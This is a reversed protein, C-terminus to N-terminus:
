FSYKLTATSSRGNISRARIINDIGNTISGEEAETLGKANFLNNVNVSLSLGDTIAADAFLNVQAYGPMVLENNDQAYSKTTGIINAGVTYGEYSYSPTLQYVLKAQRRPTNGKVAPTLADKSIEADTWTAGGSLLFGEYRYTAELEIGKATYTRDFFRQSTAEFNQEQTKAYFATAFVSVDEGRWKVGAEYQDVMDVADQKAVSGDARLRGFLLRDANARGGQSVRAFAALDPDIMYNAGVSWSWYGWDYNIKQPNASDIVSVSREPVNISGDRNVDVQAQRSAIYNGRAQGEDRRLSADLNWQGMEWAASVYPADITYQADYRRTCCNGWLPVGYALLGNSTLKQGAANYVDLLRGDRGNVDMVYTNWLWDMEINQRAKYYGATLDITSDGSVISKTLKFDNALNSFDNIEVDFLAVRTALGNGNLASPTGISSGDTNRLTAGAGGIAVALAQAGMVEQPFPSVFRGSTDAVRLKNAVAWGDALDFKFEGGVATSVPHMGDKLSSTRVNNDGDLGVNTLFNPTHLSDTLLSFNNISRIKPDSNTGSVLVPQPLYGIARDNLYKFYVRAYGNEFKRTLNAKIQGGSEANYDANRVGEGERYFGGIHATWNDGIAGGFEFDGRTTDYDLGRTVAFSGGEKDGTKSIFNIVGGPSNSALTSASGGRIAEVRAVNSDARLFIDANGFAIDGFEMVPLGDEHLQLFKAGGAAVPLGRVAINANGEGGTSESRVGPINRFIEATSRPASQMLDDASLASVSVSSRMKSTQSVVATVVIEEMQLDDSQAPAEAQAAAQAVQTEQAHAMSLSFAALAAGMASARMLICKM